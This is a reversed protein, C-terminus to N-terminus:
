RLSPRGRRMPHIFLDQKVVQGQGFPVNGLALDM